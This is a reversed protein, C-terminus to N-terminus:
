GERRGWAVFGGNRFGTEAKGYAFPAGDITTVSGGAAALVAHGAATDWEMTPGFRPYVDAEGEAVLCFKLSSGASRRDAVGLKALFAETDPDSHSRSAVACLGGAPAARVAIPGYAEAGPIDRVAARAVTAGVGVAGLWVAGLAPAHVCGLTPRNAEILGVNVTFEGNRALFERTGDLPDVLLFVSPAWAPAGDRSCAEEAIVPVGPFLKALGEHLIAEGREDADTVPSRDDKSRVAIAEADYVDLIARGAEVCLAALASMLKPDRNADIM